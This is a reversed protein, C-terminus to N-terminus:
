TQHKITFSLELCLHYGVVLVEFNIVSEVGVIFILFQSM